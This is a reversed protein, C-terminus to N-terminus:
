PPPTKKSGYTAAAIGLGVAIVIFVIAATIQDSATETFLTAVGGFLFCFALLGLCGACGKKSEAQKKEETKVAEIAAKKEEIVPIAKVLSIAEKLKATAHSSVSELASQQRSFDVEGGFCKACGYDLLEEPLSVATELFEAIKEYPLQRAKKLLDLQQAALAGQRLLEDAGKWIANFTGLNKGASGLGGALQGVAAGHMAADIISSGALQSGTISMDLNLDKLATVYSTLIRDLREFCTKRIQKALETTPTGRVDAVASFQRLTKAFEQSSKEAFGDAHILFERFFQEATTSELLQEADRTKELPKLLEEFAAQVISAMKSYVDVNEQPTMSSM